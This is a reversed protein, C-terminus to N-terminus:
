KASSTSRPATRSAGLDSAPAPGPQPLPPQSAQAHADSSFSVTWPMVPAALAAVVIPLVWVLRLLRGHWALSAMHARLHQFRFIARFRWFLLPLMLWFLLNHEHWLWPVLMLEAIGGIIVMPLCCRSILAIGGAIYSPVALMAIDGVRHAAFHATPDALFDFLRGNAFGIALLSGLFIATMGAAYCSSSGDGSALSHAGAHRGFQVQMNKEVGGEKRERVHIGGPSIHVEDDGDEVHIGGPGIHVTDKGDQVHLGDWSFRV